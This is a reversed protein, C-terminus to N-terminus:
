EPKPTINEAANNENTPMGLPVLLHKGNNNPAPRNVQPSVRWWKFADTPLSRTQAIFAAEEATTKMDMWRMADDPALVVPKRDHIDVMGGGSDETVIVFGVEVAQQTYPKFNALGAMFLPADIKRTIYWSQKKGDEVTWEYWGGAPVIVRGERFMHRFYRGTLAKGVRANIWPRKNTAAQNPMRYGWTIYDSDITGSLMHFVLPPRGPILNYQPVSDGGAWKAGGTDVGLAKAYYKRTDSQEFRGYM